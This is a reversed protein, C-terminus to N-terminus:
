IFSVIDNVQTKAHSLDLTQRERSLEVDASTSVTQKDHSFTEERALFAVLHESPRKKMLEKM